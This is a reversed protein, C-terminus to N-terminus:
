LVKLGLTNSCVGLSRCSSLDSQSDLLAVFLCPVPQGALGLACCWCCEELLEPINYKVYIRLM